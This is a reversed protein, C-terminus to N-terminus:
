ILHHLYGTNSVLDQPTLDPYEKKMKNRMSNCYLQYANLPKRPKNTDIQKKKPSLKKDQKQPSTKVPSTKKPSAKAHKQEQIEKALRGKMINPKKKPPAKDDQKQHEELAKSTADEVGRKRKKSKVPEIVGSASLLLKTDDSSKKDKQAKRYMAMATDEDGNAESMKQAFLKADAKSRFRFDNKPSYYRGDKHNPNGSRQIRRLKWGPGVDPAPESPLQLEHELAKTPKKTAEGPTANELKDPTGKKTESNRTVATDSAAIQESSKAVDKSKAAHKNTSKKHPPSKAKIECDSPSSDEDDKKSVQIDSPEEISKRKM